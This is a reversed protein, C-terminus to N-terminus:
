WKFYEMIWGILFLVLILFFPLHGLVIVILFDTL